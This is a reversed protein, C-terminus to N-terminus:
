SMRGNGWNRRELKTRNFSQRPCKLNKQTESMNTPRWLLYAWDESIRSSMIEPPPDGILWQLSQCCTSASQINYSIVAYLFGFSLALLFYRQFYAHLYGFLKPFSSSPPCSKAEATLWMLLDQKAETSVRTCIMTTMWRPRRGGFRATRVNSFPKQSWTHGMEAFKTHHYWRRYAITTRRWWCDCLNKLWLSLDICWKWFLSLGERASKLRKM